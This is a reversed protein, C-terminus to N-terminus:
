RGRHAAAALSHSGATRELANNHPRRLSSNWVMRRRRAAQGMTRSSRWWGISFRRVKDRELPPWTRLSTTGPQRIVVPSAVSSNGSPRPSASASGRYRMTCGVSLSVRRRTGFGGRLIDNFADLNHGWEANLVLARSIEEYFEELTSFRQGDIECVIRSDTRM